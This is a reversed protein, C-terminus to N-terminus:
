QREFAGIDCRNTVTGKCRGFGRQDFSGSTSKVNVAPSDSRLPHVKTPYAPASWTTLPDLKPDVNTKNNTTAGFSIGTTSEFLSYESNAVYGYGQGNASATNDGFISDFTHLNGLSGDSHYFGGGSDADNNAVTTRRFFVYGGTDIELYAGGGLSASNSSITSDNFNNNGPTYFFCVGGGHNLASNDHIASQDLNLTGGQDVYIGGGDFPTFNNFVSSRTLVADAGFVRIGSDTFDRVAADELYFLTGPHVEIGTINGSLTGGDITLSQFRVEQAGTPVAVRLFPSAWSLNGRITTSSVGNGRLTVPRHTELTSSTAYTGTGLQITTGTAQGAACDGPNPSALNNLSSIAERLTCHNDNTMNDATTTVNITVAAKSELGWLSTFALILAGLGASNRGCVHFKAMNARGNGEEYAALEFQSGV